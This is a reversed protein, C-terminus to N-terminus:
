FSDETLCVDRYGCLSYGIDRMIKNYEDVTVKMLYVDMRLNNIDPIDMIQLFRLVNGDYSVQYDEDFLDMNELVFEAAEVKKNMPVHQLIYVWDIRTNDSVRLQPANKLWINFAKKSSM